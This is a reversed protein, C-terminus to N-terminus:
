RSEFCYDRTESASRGPYLAETFVGQYKQDTDSWVYYDRYDSGPERRATQFWVHQDSTHNLVLDMIIKIDKEHAKNLFLKFNELTGYTPDVVKYSSVDYGNDVKPSKLFPTLWIGKVGLYEIYDLKDTMGKFDSFGDGNSDKYSPMYIEYFVTEKWWTKELVIEQEKNCSFMTYLALILVTRKLNRM